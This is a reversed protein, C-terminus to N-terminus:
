ACRLATEIGAKEVHVEVYELRCNGVTVANEDFGPVSARVSAVPGEAAGVLVGRENAAVTEARELRVEGDAGRLAVTVQWETPMHNSVVVDADGDSDPLSEGGGLLDDPGSCGALGALAAVGGAGVARLADRRHVARSVAM